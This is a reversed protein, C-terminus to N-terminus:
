IGLIKRYGAICYESILNCKHLVEEEADGQVFSEFVANIIFSSGSKVSFETINEPRQLFSKGKNLFEIMSETEANILLDKFNEYSTGDSATLVLLMIEKNSYIYDILIKTADYTKEFAQIIDEKSNVKLFNQANDSYLNFFKNLCPEVLAKFLDEKSGFHAYFAGNTVGADKCIKRISANRFGDSKFHEKASKLINEHTKDYDYSM